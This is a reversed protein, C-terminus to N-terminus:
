SDYKCNDLNNRMEKKLWGFEFYIINKAVEYKRKKLRLHCCAIMTQTTQQMVENM